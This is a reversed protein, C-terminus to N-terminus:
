YGYKCRVFVEVRRNKDRNKESASKILPKSGGYAYTKIRNKKIGKETLFRKVREVRKDSLDQLYQKNSSINDTHGMLELTNSENAKLYDVLIEMQAKAELLNLFDATSPKFILQNLVLTDNCNIDSVKTLNRRDFTEVEEVQESTSDELTKDNTEAIAEEIIPEEIIEDPRFTIKHLGLNNNAAWVTTDNEVALHHVISLGFDPFLKRNIVKCARTKRDYHIIGKDTAIWINKSDIEFDHFTANSVKLDRCSIPQNEWDLFDKSKLLVADGDLSEGILWYSDAQREIKKVEKINKYEYWKTYKKPSIFLGNARGVLKARGNEVVFSNVTGKFESPVHEYYDGNLGMGLILGKNSGLWIKGAGVNLGTITEDDSLLEGPIPVQKQGGDSTKLLQGNSTGVWVTSQADIFIKNAKVNKLYEMNHNLGRISVGQETCVWLKGNKFLLDKVKETPLDNVKEFHPTQALLGISFLFLFTIPLKFRINM